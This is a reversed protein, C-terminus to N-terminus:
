VREVAVLLDADLDDALGDLRRDPLDGLIGPTSLQITKPLSFPTPTQPDAAPVGAPPSNVNRLACAALSGNRIQDVSLVGAAVPTRCLLLAATLWRGQDRRRDGPCVDLFPHSRIHSGGSSSSRRCAPSIPLLM